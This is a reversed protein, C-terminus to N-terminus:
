LHKDTYKQFSLPTVSFGEVKTSNPESTAERYFCEASLVNTDFVLTPQKVKREKRQVKKFLKHM